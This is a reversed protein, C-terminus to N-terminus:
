WGVTTLFIAGTSRVPPDPQGFVISAVSEFAVASGGPGPTMGTHAMMERDATASPDHCAPLRYV